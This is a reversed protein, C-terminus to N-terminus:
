EADAPAERLTPIFLESWRHMTSNEFPIPIRSQLHHARCSGRSSLRWPSDPAYPFRAIECQVRLKFQGAGRTGQNGMVRGDLMRTRFKHVVAVRSREPDEAEDAREDKKNDHPANQM